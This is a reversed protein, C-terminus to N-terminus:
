DPDFTLTWRQRNQWDPQNKRDFVFNRIVLIDLETSMFTRYADDPSCVIPEGRQNFSTNLLVGCSTKRKFALLLAHFQPNDTSGVTQVRATGDVHTTAELPMSSASSSRHVAYSMSPSPADLDFHTKMDEELVAPAFPRFGERQKIRHNLLDKMQGPRPDALISRNGLARAGFEM